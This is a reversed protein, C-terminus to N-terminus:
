QHPSVSPHPSTRSRRRGSGTRNAHPLRAGDHGAWRQGTPVMEYVCDTALATILGDIDRADEAISHRIWLRKIAWLDIADFRRALRSRISGEPAVDATGTPGTM